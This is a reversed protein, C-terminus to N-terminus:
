ANPKYSYVVVHAFQLPVISTPRSDHATRPSGGVGHQFRATSEEQEERMRRLVTLDLLDLSTAAPKRVGGGGGGGGGLSPSVGPRGEAGQAEEESLNQLKRKTSAWRASLSSRGGGAKLKSKTSGTWALM